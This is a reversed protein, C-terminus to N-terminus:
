INVAHKGPGRFAFDRTRDVPGTGMLGEDVYRRIADKRKAHSFRKIQRYAFMRLRERMEGKEGVEPNRDYERESCQITATSPQIDMHVEPVAPKSAGM